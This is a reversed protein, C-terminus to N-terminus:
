KEKVVKNKLSGIGEIKIEIEDGAELFVPKERAFGVGEPTGTLIITGPLLTMNQSLYSIIKKVSFVQFITM